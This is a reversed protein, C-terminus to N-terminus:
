GQPAHYIEEFPQVVVFGNGSFKMQVSEGSGRGFFSKLQVDTVFDPELNGSWAVTANPDTFVPTDPTVLLTLPEYHSTFAVLGHGELRVNFLGGAMMGAVRRMLKIDWDLGDQFALLDNGNIFISEGELDLITIKKGSDAVYLKGQGNAKMLQAGEGSLAKKVFKGLGHELMGEREFKINGEYSIMSGAKAWVQGNLNVELLRDTELEFFDRASEEQKTQQVFQKISYKSM